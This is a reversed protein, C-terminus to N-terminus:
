RVPLLAKWLMPLHWPKKIIATAMIKPWIKMVEKPPSINLTVGRLNTSQAIMMAAVLMTSQIPSIRLATPLLCYDTNLRVM